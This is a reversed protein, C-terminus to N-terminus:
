EFLNMYVKEEATLRLRLIPPETELYQIVEDLHARLKPFVTEMIEWQTAGDYDEQLTGNESSGGTIWRCATLIVVRTGVSGGGIRRMEGGGWKSRAL